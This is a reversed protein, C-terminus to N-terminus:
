ARVYSVLPFLGFWVIYTLALQLIRDIRRDYIGSKIFRALALTLVIWNPVAVLILWYGGRPWDLLHSVLGSTAIALTAFVMALQCARKPGFIVSLTKKGVTQDARCDPIGALTIAALVSFFLPLSITWPMPNGLSGAQFVFGCCIVYPSHTIGVVLEGM